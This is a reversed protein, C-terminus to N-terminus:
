EFLKRIEEESLNKKGEKGISIFRDKFKFIVREGLTLFRATEPFTLAFNLYTDSDYPIRLVEEDRYRSDVWVSDRLVFLVGEVTRILAADSASEAEKMERTRKSMKVADVGSVTPQVGGIIYQQVKGKETRDLASVPVAHLPRPTEDEQVLYSTYPSVVGYKRSLRIIENKLEENEGHLRIEDVLFGIKRTAWLHALYPHSEEKKGFDVEYTFSRPRGNMKGTLFVRARGGSSYRGLLTLQSGSYLHPLRRPFIDQTEVGRIEIKLDTLVPRSIKAYFSSITAEISEQPEVYDSVAQCDAALRDLLFTNVDYGLGFPFIKLNAQNNQKVRDLITGADREGVTPLGDTLFIISAARDKAFEMGLATQLAADINTGGAADLGELFRLAEERRSVPVLRDSFSRTETSFAIINFRDNSGLRSICWSLAEKAQSLKEGTMSGSIDLIFLIDKNIIERAERKTAPSVLLLFYGEEGPRPPHSLLSVGIDQDSPSFFLRFSGKEESGTASEWTVTAHREDRRVIDVSHSPSYVSGLGHSSAIDVELSFRAQSAGSRHLPYTFDILNNDRPLLSTYELIIKREGGPPIPFISASFLNYGVLELLAPDRRRRVIDEYIQRAKDKPLLEGKMVKGDVIMRFDSVSAGDPLPFYYTGELPRASSNKFIQSVTVQAAQDSIRATVAHESLLPAPTQRPLTPGPIIFGQSLLAAPLILILICTIFFTKNKLCTLSEM